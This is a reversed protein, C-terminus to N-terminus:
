QTPLNMQCRVAQNATLRSEDVFSSGEDSPAATGRGYLAAPPPFIFESYSDYITLRASDGNLKLPSHLSFSTCSM